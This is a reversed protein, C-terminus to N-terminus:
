TKRTVLTGAIKDHLSQRRETFFMTLYGLGFTMGTLVSAFFRGSARAFSIREGHLGTVRIGTALKGVTAQRGSSELLAYYLWSVVTGLVALLLYTGFMAAFAEPSYEDGRFSEFTAGMPIMALMVLPFSGINLVIGDLFVAWFRRWFGAYVTSGAAVATPVGAPAPTVVAMPAGCNPCYSGAGEVSAGCRSCFM